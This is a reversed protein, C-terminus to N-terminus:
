VKRYNKGVPLSELAKGKKGKQLSREDHGSCANDAQLPTVFGLALENVDQRFVMFYDDAVLPACIGAVRNDGSIL